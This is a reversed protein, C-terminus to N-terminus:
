ADIAYHAHYYGVVQFIAYFIWFTVWCSLRFFEFLSDIHDDFFLFDILFTM